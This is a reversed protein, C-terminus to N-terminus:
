QTSLEGCEVEQRNTTRVEGLRLTDYSLGWVIIIEVFNSASTVIETFFFTM